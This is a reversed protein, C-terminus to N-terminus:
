KKRTRRRVVKPEPEPVPPPEPAAETPRVLDVSDILHWPYLTAVGGRTALIGNPAEDLKFDLHTIVSMRRGDGLAIGRNLHVRLINMNSDM